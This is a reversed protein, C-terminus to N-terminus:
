RTRSEDPPFSHASFPLCLHYRSLLYFAPLHPPLRHSPLIVPGCEEWRFASLSVVMDTMLPVAEPLTLILQSALLHRLQCVATMVYIRAHQCTSCLVPLVSPTSLAASIRRCHPPCYVKLQTLPHRSLPFLSFAAAKLPLVVASVESASYLPEFFMSPPRWAVATLTLFLFFLFRCHSKMRWGIECEGKRWKSEKCKVTCYNILCLSQSDLGTVRCQVSLTNTVSTDKFSFLFVLCQHTDAYSLLFFPYCGKQRKM